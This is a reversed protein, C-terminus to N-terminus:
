RMIIKSNVPEIASELSESSSTELAPDERVGVVLRKFVAGGGDLREVRVVSDLPWGRLYWVKDLKTGNM